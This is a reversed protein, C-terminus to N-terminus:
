EIELFIVGQRNGAAGAAAQTICYGIIPSSFAGAVLLTGTSVTLSAYAGSTVRSAMLQQGAVVTNTADEQCGVVGRTCVWGWLNTSTTTAMTVGTVQAATTATAACDTFMSAVIITGTSPLIAVKIAEALQIRLTGTAPNDTATNGIIRYTDGVGTGRTTILYGGQYKNAAISAITVEVYHSGVQGPLIPAEAAVAVASASAVPVAANYTAGGSATTHGVLVGANTATGVHAYRFVNGDARTFGQGVPYRPTAHTDYVNVDGGVMMQGVISNSYYTSTSLAM